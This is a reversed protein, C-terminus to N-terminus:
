AAQVNRERPLTMPAFASNTIRSFAYAVHTKTADSMAARSDRRPPWQVIGAKAPMRKRRTWIHPLVAEGNMKELCLRQKKRHATTIPVCHMDIRPQVAGIDGSV